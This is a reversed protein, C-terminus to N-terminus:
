RGWHSEPRLTAVPAQILCERGYWQPHVSTFLAGVVRLARRNEGLIFARFTAVSQRQAATVLHGLLRTGLGRGPGGDEILLAFEAEEWDVREYRAVGVIEEGVLAV